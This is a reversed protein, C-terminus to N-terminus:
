RFLRRFNFYLYFTLYRRKIIARKIWESCSFLNQYEKLKDIESIKNLHKLYKIHPYGLAEYRFIGDYILGWLLKMFWETSEYTLLNKQEFFKYRIIWHLYDTKFQNYHLKTSLSGTQLKRYNYLAESITKISTVYGLYKFNFELDEGLSCDEPFIINHQKLIESKYLKNTPGYLLNKRLLDTLVDVYDRSLEITQSQCPQRIVIKGNEHNYVIGSIVLDCGEAGTIMGSLYNDDIWDDSDIFTIYEGQAHKIGNNRAASVGLNKQHLVRIRTDVESWSDCIDSSGDTSGDDILICEWEKYHQNCISKLCTDLYNRTNYVPVIITIM